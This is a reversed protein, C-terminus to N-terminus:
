YRAVYAHRMFDFSKNKAPRHCVGILTNMRCEGGRTAGMEHCFLELLIDGVGNLKKDMVATSEEMM